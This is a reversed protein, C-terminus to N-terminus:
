TTEEITLITLGEPLTASPKSKLEMAGDDELEKEVKQRSVELKALNIKKDYRKIIENTYEPRNSLDTRGAVNTHIIAQRAQKALEGRMLARASFLVLLKQTAENPDPSFYATAGSELISYQQFMEENYDDTGDSIYNLLQADTYYRNNEDLDGAERQLKAVLDNQLVSM